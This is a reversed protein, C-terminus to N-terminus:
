VIVDVKLRVLEVALDGFAEPTGSRWELALNRGEVYGLDRLDQELLETFRSGVSSHKRRGLVPDASACADLDHLHTVRPLLTMKPQSASLAPSNWGPGRM